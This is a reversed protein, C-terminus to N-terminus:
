MEAAVMRWNENIFQNMTAALEKDRGNFLNDLQIKAGGINFETQMFDVKYHENGNKKVRKLKMALVGDIDSFNGYAMGHGRIPLMLLIGQINYQGQMVLEPFWIKLRFKDSGVDSRVSRLRFNTAGYISINKFSAEVQIGSDQAVKIEPVLLPNLSPVDLEKIGDFFYPRLILISRRICASLKPDTQNCIKIYSALIYSSFNWAFFNNFNIKQVLPNRKIVGRSQM